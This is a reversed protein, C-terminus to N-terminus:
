AHDVEGHRKIISRSRLLSDFGFKARIIKIVDPLNRKCEPQLIDWLDPTTGGSQISGLLVGLMRIKVRRQFLLSFLRVAAAFIDSENNTRPITLSRTKCVFDSYKIKITLCACTLNEQQLQYVAKETLRSLYSLLVARSTTDEPLTTDRSIGKRMPKKESPIVKNECLGRAANFIYEGTRGFAARWAEIPLLLIDSVYYVGMGQLAPEFKKGIGPIEKIPLHSLFNSEAGPIIELIGRPKGLNSAIKAVLKNTAFGITSPLGSKESIAATIKEALDLNHRYILDCGTFDLYFEDVSAQEVIPCYVQLLEFVQNSLIGINDPVPLLKLDPCRNRALWVPMASSIGYKRAEYSASCVISRNSMGGVILPQGRLEPHKLLAAEVFFADLDLCAIRKQM